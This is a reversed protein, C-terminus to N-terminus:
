VSSRITSVAPDVGFGRLLSISYLDNVRLPIRRRHRTRKANLSWAATSTNSTPPEASRVLGSILSASNPGCRGTPAKQLRLRKPPILFDCLMTQLLSIEGRVGDSCAIQVSDSMAQIGSVLLALPSTNFINRGAPMFVGMLTNTEGCSGSHFCAKARSDSAM